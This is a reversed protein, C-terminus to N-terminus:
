PLLTFGEPAPLGEFVSAVLDFRVDTAGGAGLLCPGAGPPECTAHWAHSHPFVEILLRTANGPLPAVGEPYVGEPELRVSFPADGHFRAYNQYDTVGSGAGGARVVMRLGDLGPMAQADFHLDLVVTRWATPLELLFTGNGGFPTPAQAPVGADGARENAAAVLADCSGSIILAELACDYHGLFRQTHMRGAPPEPMLIVTLGQTIGDPSLSMDRPLFGPAQARLTHPSAALGAFLFAGDAGTAQTLVGDITVNAQLPRYAEDTVVGAIAM